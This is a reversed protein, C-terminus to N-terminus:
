KPLGSATCIIDLESMTYLECLRRLEGPKENGFALLPLLIANAGSVVCVAITPM